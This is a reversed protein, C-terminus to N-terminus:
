ELKNLRCSDVPSVRLVASSVAVQVTFTGRSIVCGVM